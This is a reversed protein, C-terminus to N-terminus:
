HKTPMPLCEMVEVGDGPFITFHPHNEFLEAAAQQSDARVKVYAALNNSTDQIGADSTRKTKGLPAGPYVVDSAHDQMWKSWAEMGEKERQKRTDPDLKEWNARGAATGTFVALYNKM